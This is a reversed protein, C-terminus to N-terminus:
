HAERTRLELKAFLHRVERLSEQQATVAAANREDAFKRITQLVRSFGRDDPLWWRICSPDGFHAAMKSRLSLPYIYGQTEAVALKRRLWMQHREERPLFLAALSICAQVTVLVGKPTSPWFELAEFYQCTAYAHRSLEPFLIESRANSSQTKHMLMISYWEVTMITTSFLPSEYLIGPAYPDVIDLPDPPQRYPFETVAFNPDTLTPDWSNKWEELRETLLQHEDNFEETTLQGRSGRAFVISMDYTIVNLRARREDLKWRIAEPHAIVQAHSFNVMATFYERPLDTPFGGMLGIFNDFRSYWTYCARGVPTQVITQPSFMTTIIEFAAKQHGMLNVWDGLYEEITALQLITLLTTITHKEKRKLSGLLLTVSKNYYQLFDELKGEPDQLTMHYASFGVLANLLAEDSVAIAPLMSKFFNDGDHSICYHFHTMNDSFWAMHRQTQPSFHSLDLRGVSPVPLDSSQFTVTTFSNTTATSASPSSSKNGEQSPTESGRRGLSPQITGFSAGVPRSPYHSLFNQPLDEGEEVDLISELKSGTDGDEEDDGTSSLPSTHQSLNMGERMRLNPGPVGKPAPPEPYVCERNGKRCRECIPRTEDCKVRRSRCMFCGSRTRRHKVNDISPPLGTASKRRGKHTKPANLLLQDPYGTFYGSTQYIGPAQGSATHPAGSASSSASYEDPSAPHLAAGSMSSLFQQYYDAM